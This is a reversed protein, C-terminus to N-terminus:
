EEREKSKREEDRSPAKQVGKLRKESGNEYKSQAM